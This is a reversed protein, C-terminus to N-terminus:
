SLFALSGELPTRGAVRRFEELSRFPRSAAILGARKKGVGPLWRLAPLPLRNVDVPFPLATVSRMGWDVVVADLVTGRLLPLPFGVLIPYSGMPRGFSPSGAVEVEVEVSRIVTGAPFVRSLMPLDFERRVWEKFRRFRADHKGLTNDDFARTGPFPMLQRINVRRVLLDRSAVGALFAQNRDFTEETEGALGIVFNLGPLLEPIGETRRAGARNVIEIARLMEEPGAKLNNREVVVPDATEMGFAAVDGPTHHRVIVDLAAAADEEHRAITGPNVNDIHLTSLDPAAARIGSFLAELAGPDPRPFEASGPVGYALLDAQRGLRFHRAGERYLAGIEDAVASPSRFRPPGYFPETCFSCGGSVSRHCGTGTEIECMVRPYDPHQRIVPAGEVAWRDSMAYDPTGSPDGGGLWASLAEAPSGSLLVDYGAIERRVARRGGGPSFGFLVPGGLLAVPGRIGAGIQEVESLTAPTGGLYKGPVTLGAIVLVLDARELSFLLGPDERLEDITRYRLTYGHSLFVGASTRIYPSLYPPVGLCAPEDVYGDLIVASSTM